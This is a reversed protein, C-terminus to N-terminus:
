DRLRAGHLGDADMWVFIGDAQIGVAEDPEAPTRHPEGSLDCPTTFDPGLRSPDPGEAQRYTNDTFCWGLTDADVDITQGTGVDLSFRSGDDLTLAFSARGFRVLPRTDVYLGSAGELEVTWTAEGTAPDFGEMVADVDAGSVVRDEWDLTGTMRCRLWPQAGNVRLNLETLREGCSPDGEVVWLTAGTSADIGATYQPVVEASGFEPVDVATGLSGVLLDGTTRWTWGYDPSVEHGGFM